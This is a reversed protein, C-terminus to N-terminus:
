NKDHKALWAAATAREPSTAAYGALAERALAVARSKDGRAAVLARALAFRASALDRSAM